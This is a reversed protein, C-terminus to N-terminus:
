LGNKEVEKEDRIRQEADSEYILKKGAEKSKSVLFSKFKAKNFFVEYHKTYGTDISSGPNLDGYTLAGLKLDDWILYYMKRNSTNLKKIHNFYDKADM